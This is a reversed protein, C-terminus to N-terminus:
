AANYNLMESRVLTRYTLSVNDGILQSDATFDEPYNINNILMRKFIYKRVAKGEKNCRYAIQESVCYELRNATYREWYHQADRQSRAYFLISSDEYDVYTQTIDNVPVSTVGTQYLPYGRVNFELLTAEPEQIGTISQLRIKILEENPHYAAAPWKIIKITWYNSVLLEDYHDALTGYSLYELLNDSAM